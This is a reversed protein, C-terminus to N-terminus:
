HIIFEAFVACHDSLADRRNDMQRHVEVLDLNRFYIRDMPLMPLSAPYTRLHRGHAAYYADEVDLARCIKKDLRRSWDNFDGAIILPADGPVREEVASILSKLQAQREIGLLGLHICFVHLRDAVIGHLIGRQSFTFHSVDTNEWWSFPYKSLIANGHHGHQYIANRGYAFHSWISDALYEFQTGGIWNSHKRAHGSHEGLVEQLFVLDCGSRRIAQRIEQLVFSSNNPTFGKHINYSLVKFQKIPIAPDSM